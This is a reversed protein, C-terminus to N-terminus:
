GPLLGGATARFTVGAPFGAAAAVDGDLDVEDAAGLDAGHEELEALVSLAFAVAPRIREPWGDPDQRDWAAVPILLGDIVAWVGARVAGLWGAAGEAALRVVVDGGRAAPGPRCSGPPSYVARCGTLRRSWCGTAAQLPRASAPWICCMWMMMPTPIAPCALMRARLRATWAAALGWPITTM